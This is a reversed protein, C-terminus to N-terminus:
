PLLTVRVNDLMLDLNATTASVDRLTLTASSRDAVFTYSRSVYSTGTGPAFVSVTQSVLPTTAQGQVTVQLLQENQNISSIAGVDLTLTYSRGATTAFTQSL